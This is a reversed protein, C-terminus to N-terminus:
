LGVTSQSAVERTAFHTESDNKTTGKGAVLRAVEMTGQRCQAHNLSSLFREKNKKSEGEFGTVCWDLISVM